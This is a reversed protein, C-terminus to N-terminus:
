DQIHNTFYDALTTYVDKKLTDPLSLFEELTAWKAEAFEKDTAKSIDVQVGPKVKLFYWNHMQGLCNSDKLRPRVESTYEYLLWDPYKDVREFDDPTLATEELLERWLTKDMEENPNMGGQQLQWLDPNDTRSFLLIEGAENYIVSGAGVRFYQNQSM